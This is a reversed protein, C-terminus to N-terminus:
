EGPPLRRASAAGAVALASAAVAEGLAVRRWRPRCAALALMSAAHLLDVGVGLTLLTRTPAPGTVAAQVIQRAGLVRVTRRAATSEEKGLRVGAYAIQLLGYGARTLAPGSM